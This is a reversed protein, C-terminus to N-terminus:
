RPQFLAVVNGAPDECLIQRGGLWLQLGGQELIAMAPGFQQKLTFGLGDRYFAVASAVDDVM